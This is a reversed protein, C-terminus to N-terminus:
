ADHSSHSRIKRARKLLDNFRERRLEQKQHVTRQWQENQMRLEDLQDSMSKERANVIEAMELFAQGLEGIEDPRSAIKKLINADLTNSKIAKACSNLEGIPKIIWLSAITGLVIAIITVGSGILFTYRLNSYILEMFDQEPIVVFVLWDLGHSQLPSVQVLHRQNQLTYELATVDQIQMLSSQTQLLQELTVQITPTESDIALLQQPTGNETSFLSEDTSSAVLHGSRNIIFADGQPSIDLDKLFDSLHQLNIDIGFVGIINDQIESEASAYIPLTSTMEPEGTSASAYIPSWTIEGLEIATKYWPLNRADYQTELTEIKQGKGGQSNLQYMELRPANTADRLLLVMRGDPMKKVGIFDGNQDGFYIYDIFDIANVKDKFYGAIAEFENPDILNNELIVGNIKNVITPLGLYSNIHREIALIAKDSFRLTLYNVARSGSLFGLIATAGTAVILPTVILVTLIYRISILHKM